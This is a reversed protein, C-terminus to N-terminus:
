NSNAFDKMFKALTFCQEETVANYLSARLGGIARHGNLGHLNQALAEFIFRDNLDETPCFFAANMISRFKPDAFGRYFGNTSDIAEYILEAKKKNRMMLEHLSGFKEKIWRVVLLLVYISFVPPTNYISGAEVHPEYRLITPLARNENELLRDKVIVVTVGAPGLNKQAHAYILDYPEVDIPASLFDSSMDCILPATTEPIYNFQLGEVTENSVYHLYSHREKLHLEKASPLIGKPYHDANWIVEATGKLGSDSLSKNSWYGSLIYAPRASSNGSFNMAIMAFQLTSGGQLFLVRYNKPIGLLERIGAEADDVVQRFWASRHSIGLISLGVPDVVDIANRAAELVEMPLAGPGGSFNHQERVM